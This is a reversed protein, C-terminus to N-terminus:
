KIRKFSSKLRSDRVFRWLKHLYRYGKPFMKYLVIGKSNRNKEFNNIIEFTNVKSEKNIIHSNHFIDNIVSKNNNWNRKKLAYDRAKKKMEPISDPNDVYKQMVNTLDTTDIEGIPWFYNDKRKYFQKIKVVSGCSEEVFENMPSNDCTILILGSSLAEAM